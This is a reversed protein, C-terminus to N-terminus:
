PRSRLTAQSPRGAPGPSTAKPESSLYPLYFNRASLRYGDGEDDPLRVTEILVGFRRLEDKDREFTRRLAAKAQGQQYGPVDKILEDLTVPFRHSLLSALLDIWRQTKPSTM